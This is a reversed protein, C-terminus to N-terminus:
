PVRADDGNDTLFLKAAAKWQEGDFVHSFRQPMQLSTHGLLEMAVRDPIGQQCFLTAYTHRLCPPNVPFGVARSAVTFLRRLVGLGVPRDFMTEGPGGERGTVGGQHSGALSM